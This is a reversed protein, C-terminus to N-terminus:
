TGRTLLTAEVFFFSYFVARPYIHVRRYNSPYFTLLPHFFITKFTASTHLLQTTIAFQM